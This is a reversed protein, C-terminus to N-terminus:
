NLLVLTSVVVLAFMLILVSLWWVPFEETSVKPNCCSDRCPTLFPVDKVLDLRSCFTKDDTGGMLTRTNMKCGTCEM